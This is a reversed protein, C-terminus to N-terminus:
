VRAGPDDPLPFLEDIAEREAADPRWADEALANAEVQAASTAGAIVSSVTPNSLLWGFSAQVMTIDREDCFVRFQEIADWPANEWVHRRSSM